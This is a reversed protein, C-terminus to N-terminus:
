GVYESSFYVVIHCAPGTSTASQSVICTFTYFLMLFSRRVRRFWRYDHRQAKFGRRPQWHQCVLQDQSRKRFFLTQKRPLHSHSFLKMEKTKEKFPRIFSSLFFSLTLATQNRAMLYKSILDCFTLVAGLSSFKVGRKEKKREKLLESITLDFTLTLCLSDTARTM